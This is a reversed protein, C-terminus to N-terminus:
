DTALRKGLLTFPYGFVVVIGAWVAVIIWYFFVGFGSPTFFLSLLIATVMPALGALVLPVVPWSSTESAYGIPLFLATALGFPVVALTFLGGLLWLLTGTALTVLVALRTLGHADRGLGTRHAAVGLAAYGVGLAGLGPFFPRGTTAMSVLPLSVAGVTGVTVFLRELGAADFARVGLDVRGVVLGM